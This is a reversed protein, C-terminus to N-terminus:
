EGSARRALRKGEEAVTLMPQINDAEDAAKGFNKTGYTYVM